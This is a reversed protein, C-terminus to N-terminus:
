SEWVYWRNYLERLFERQVKRRAMNHIHGKGCPKGEKTKEELIWPRHQEYWLKWTDWMIRWKCDPMKNWVETILFLTKRLLQSKKFPKGKERKPAKGDKTVDLGAYSVLRGFSPFRKADGIAVLLPVALVGGVGVEAVPLLVENYWRTKRILSDVRRALSDEVSNLPKYFDPIEFDSDQEKVVQKLREYLEKKAGIALQYYHAMGERVEPPLVESAWFVRKGKKDGIVQFLQNTLAIRSKQVKTFAYWYGVAPLCEEPIMKMKKIFREQLEDFTANNKETGNNNMSMSFGGKNTLYTNM